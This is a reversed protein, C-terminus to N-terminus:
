TKRKKKGTPVLLRTHQLPRTDLRRSSPCFTRSGLLCCGGQPFWCIHVKNQITQQHHSPPITHTHPPFPPPPTCELDPISSQPRVMSRRCPQLRRARERSKLLAVGPPKPNFAPAKHRANPEEYAQVQKRLHNLTIPLIDNNSRIYTDKRRAQLRLPSPQRPRLLRRRRRVTRRSGQPDRAEEEARGLRKTHQRIGTKTRLMRAQHLAAHHGGDRRGRQLRGGHEPSRPPVRGRETRTEAHLPIPGPGPGSDRADRAEHRQALPLSRPYYARARRRGAECPDGEVGRHNEVGGVRRGRRHTEMRGPWPHKAASDSAVHNSRLPLVAQVCVQGPARLHLM